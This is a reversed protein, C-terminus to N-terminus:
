LESRLAEWDERLQEKEMLNLFNMIREGSRQRAHIAGDGGGEHEAWARFDRIM